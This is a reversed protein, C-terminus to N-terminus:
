TAVERAPVAKREGAEAILKENMRRMHLIEEEVTGRHPALFPEWIRAFRAVNKSRLSDWEPRGGGQWRYGTAKMASSAYHLVGADIQWIKYGWSRVRFSLDQDHGDYIEYAEDFRLGRALLEPRLYACSFDISEGEMFGSPHRYQFDHVYWRGNPNHYVPTPNGQPSKSGGVIGVDPREKAFDILNTLWGPQVETDADLLVVQYPEGGELYAIHDLAQNQAAPLGRNTTNSIYKVVEVQGFPQNEDLYGEIQAREIERSGNDVIVWFAPHQTASHLSAACRELDCSNNWTLTVVYTNIRGLESLLDGV